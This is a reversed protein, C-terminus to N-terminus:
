LEWDPDYIWDGVRLWRGNEWTKEGAQLQREMGILRRLRRHERKNKPVQFIVDFDEIDNLADVHDYPVDANDPDNKMVEMALIMEEAVEGGAERQLLMCAEERNMTGM